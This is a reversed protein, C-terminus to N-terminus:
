LVFLPDFKHLYYFFFITGKSFRLRPEQNHQEQFQQALRIFLSLSLPYLIKLSLIILNSYHPALSLLSLLCGLGLAGVLMVLLSPLCHSIRVRCCVFNGSISFNVLSYIFIPMKTIIIKKYKTFLLLNIM